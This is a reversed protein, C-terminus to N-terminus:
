SKPHSRDPCHDATEQFAASATPEILQLFLERLRKKARSARQRLATESAVEQGQHSLWGHISSWSWNEVIKLYLMQTTEPDEAQLMALAQHLLELEEKLIQQQLLNQREDLVIAELISPETLGARNKRKRESIVHFATAKLWAHANYIEEGAQIKKKGRLYAEHLVEYAETHASLRYQKLIRQIASIISYAQPNSRGLIEILAQDFIDQAPSEIPFSVKPLGSIDDSQSM